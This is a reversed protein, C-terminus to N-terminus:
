RVAALKAIGSFQEGVVEALDIAEVEIGGLYALHQRASEINTTLWWQSSGGLEINIATIGILAAPHRRVLDLLALCEAHERPLRGDYEMIGAREEYEERLDAALANAIDENKEFHAKM